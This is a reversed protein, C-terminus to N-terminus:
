YSYDIACGVRIESAKVGHKEFYKVGDDLKKMMSTPTETEKHYYFDVESRKMLNILDAQGVTYLFNFDPQRRASRLVKCKEDFQLETSTNQLQELENTYTEIESDCRQVNDKSECADDYVRCSLQPNTEYDLSELLKFILKRNEFVLPLQVSVGM